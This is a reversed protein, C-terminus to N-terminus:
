GAVAVALVTLALLALVARAVHGYEWRARLSKWDADGRGGQPGASFFATGARGLEQQRLWIRNVPQNVLWFVAHMLLLAVLAALTLWFAANGFPTVVLLWLTALIAGFEGFIGGITFGPYYITQVAFYEERSLKLKGPLELAHALSLGMGVAILVLCLVQLFQVM